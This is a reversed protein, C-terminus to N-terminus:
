FCCKWMGRMCCKSVPKRAAAPLADVLTLQNPDLVIDRFAHHSLETDSEMALDGVHSYHRPFHSLTAFRCPLRTALPHVRRGARAALRRSARKSSLQGNALLPASLPLQCTRNSAVLLEFERLALSHRLQQTRMWWKTAFTTYALKEVKRSRSWFVPDSTWNLTRTDDHDITVTIVACAIRGPAQLAAAGCWLSDLAFDSGVSHQARSLLDWQRHNSLFFSANVIATQQEVYSTEAAAVGSGYWFDDTNLMEAWKGRADGFEATAKAAIVPQSIIPPGRRAFARHLRQWYAQINFRRFSIDEDALCVYEHQAILDLAQLWFLMKPYFPRGNIKQAEADPHRGCRVVITTLAKAATREVDNWSEVKSQDYLVVAWAARRGLALVNEGIRQRSAVKSSSVHLVLLRAVGAANLLSGASATAPQSPRPM